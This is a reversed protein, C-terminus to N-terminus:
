LNRFSQKNIKEWFMEQDEESQMIERSRDEPNNIREEMAKMGTIWLIM